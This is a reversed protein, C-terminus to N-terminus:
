WISLKAGQLLIEREASCVAAAKKKYLLVQLDLSSKLKRKWAFISTIKDDNSM